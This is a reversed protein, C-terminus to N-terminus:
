ISSIYEACLIMAHLNLYNYPLVLASLFGALNIEFIFNAKSELVYAYNVLYKRFENIYQTAIQPGMRCAVPNGRAHHAFNSPIFYDLM